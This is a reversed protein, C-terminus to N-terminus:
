KSELLEKLLHRPLTKDKSSAGGPLNVSLFEKLIGMAVSETAKHHVNGGDVKWKRAMKKQDTISLHKGFWTQFEAPIKAGKRATKLVPYTHYLLAMASLLETQIAKDKPWALKLTAVAHVVNEVGYTLARRFGGISVQPDTPNGIRGGIPDDPSGSLSLGAQMLHKGDVVADAM